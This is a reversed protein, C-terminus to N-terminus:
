ANFSAFASLLSWYAWGLLLLGTLQNGRHQRQHLFMAGGCAASILSAFGLVVIYPHM